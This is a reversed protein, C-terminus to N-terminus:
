ESGQTFGKIQQATLTIAHDKQNNKGTSGVLFARAANTGLAKEFAKKVATIREAMWKSNMGVESNDDKTITLTNKTKEIDKLESSINQYFKLFSDAYNLNSSKSRKIVGTKFVTQEIMWLYFAFNIGTLPVAISNAYLCGQAM